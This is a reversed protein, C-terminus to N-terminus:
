EGAGAVWAQLEVEVLAGEPPLAAVIVTTNTPEAGAFLEGHAQVGARWDAAPTFHIRTQVVDDRGAGLKAAAALARELAVRTQGYTDGPHLISGDPATAATGSVLVLPGSRVARCYAALAAFPSDDHVRTVM